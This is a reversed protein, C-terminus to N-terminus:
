SVEPRQSLFSRGGYGKERERLVLGLVVSLVELVNRPMLQVGQCENRFLLMTLVGWTYESLCVETRIREKELNRGHWTAIFGRFVIFVM